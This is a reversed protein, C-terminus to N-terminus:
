KPVKVPPKVKMGVASGGMLGAAILALMAPTQQKYRKAVFFGIAGGALTIFLFLYPYIYGTIRLGKPVAVFGGDATVINGEEDTTMFGGGGGGGLIGSSLTGVLEDGVIESLKDEGSIVVDDGSSIIEEATTTIENITEESLPSGSDDGTTVESSGDDYGSMWADYALQFYEDYNAMDLAPITFTLVSGDPLVGEVTIEIAGNRDGYKDILKDVEASYTSAAGNINIYLKPFEYNQMAEDYAAQFYQDYNPSQYPPIEFTLVQQSEPIVGEVNIILSQNRNYNNMIVNVNNDYNSSGYVLNFTETPYVYSSMFDEYAAQLYANYSPADFPPIQFSLVSGDPLLNSVNIILTQNRNYGSKITYVDNEYSSGTFNLNFTETPYVYSAMYAEYAESFYAFANKNEMAPVVFNLNDGPMDTVTINYQINAPKKAVIANLLSDIFYGSSPNLSGSVNQTILSIQSLYADRLQYFTEIIIPFKEAPITLITDVWNGSVYKVWGNGDAAYKHRWTIVAKDFGEENAWDGLTSEVPASFVNPATEIILIEAIRGTASQYELVHPNINDLIDNM